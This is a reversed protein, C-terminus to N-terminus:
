AAVYVLLGPRVPALLAAVHRGRRPPPQTILQAAPEQGEPGVALGALVDQVRLGQPREAFEDLSATRADLRARRADWRDEPGDDQDPRDQVYEDQPQEIEAARRVEHEAAHERREDAEHDVHHGHEVFREATDM